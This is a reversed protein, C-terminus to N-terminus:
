IAVPAVAIGDRVKPLRCLSLLLFAVTVDPRIGLSIEIGCLIQDVFKTRERRDIRGAQRKLFQFLGM